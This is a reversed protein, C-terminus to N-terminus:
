TIGKYEQGLEKLSLSKKTIVGKPISEESVIGPTETQKQTEKQLEFEEQALRKVENQVANSKMKRYLTEKVEARMEQTPTKFIGLINLKLEKNALYLMILGIIYGIGMAALEAGTEGAALHEVGYSNSPSLFTMTCVIWWIALTLYMFYPYNYELKSYSDIKEHTFLIYAGLLFAPTMLMVYILEIM